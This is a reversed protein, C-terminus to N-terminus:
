IGTFGGQSSPREPGVPRRKVAAWDFEMDMIEDYAAVVRAIGEEVTRDEIHPLDDLTFTRNERVKGDPASIDLLELGANEFDGTLLTMRILAGFLALQGFDLAYCRRPQLWFVRVKGNEVFYFDAAVRVSLDKRVKLRGHQMPHCQVNRGAGSLQVAQVAEWNSKRGVTNAITDCAQKLASLSLGGAFARPSVRRALEYSFFGPSRILHELLADKTAPQTPRILRVLDHCPPLNPAKMVGNRFAVGTSDGVPLRIPNNLIGLRAAQGM